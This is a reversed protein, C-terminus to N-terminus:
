HRFGWPGGPTWAATRGSAEARGANGAQPSVARHFLVLSRFFMESFLKVTAPLHTLFSDPRSFSPRRSHGRRGERERRAERPDEIDEVRVDGPAHLVTARM